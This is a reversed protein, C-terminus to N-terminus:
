QLNELYQEMKRRVFALQDASSTDLMAERLQRGSGTQVVAGAWKKVTAGRDLSSPM